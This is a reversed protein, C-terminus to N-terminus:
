FNFFITRIVKGKNKGWLINQQDSIDDYYRNILLYDSPPYILLPLTIWRISWDAAKKWSRNLCAAKIM